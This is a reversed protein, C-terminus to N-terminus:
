FLLKIPDLYLTLLAAAWLFCCYALIPYINMGTGKQHSICGALRAAVMDMDRLKYLQYQGCGYIVVHVQDLSLLGNM